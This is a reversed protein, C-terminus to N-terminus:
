FNLYIQLSYRSPIPYVRGNLYATEPDWLKSKSWVYLNTGVLQFDISSIGVKQLFDKRYNYNITVEQLRLYRSNDRWWTSLQSNNANYGYSLRPFKANPNETSPDGSYSAPTWRNSQDAVITLVNGLEGGHFPVYGMGNIYWVGDQEVTQGVHFYDTKGTGKFLVGITLKKYRFEAGFGYMLTPYTNTALPIQDDKDIKGDGNIDKYKIDGPLITGGFSQIPSNRVDAEDRFLGIAQYGRLANLPYGNLSQYPYKPVVQEWVQVENKSFTYNARLTFSMDDSLTHTYAINGDSGWSKMGGVNGYPLAMLGVYDPIQAREQFIGDRKDNFLDITFTLRENFLRGEFGIDSKIAKEWILNDAGISSETIGPINPSGWGVGATDNIITLYPYRKNSIRDNGVSGYSARIKFFDLWPLAKKVPEYMTPVWGVAVSPFFGFQRGPQFNESGTYGFNFDVMYTDNYGYTLRSSIGQYRLPIANMSESTVNLPIDKTEKQDSMYYYVLGSVRHVGFSKQYNLTSEFHYKRFQNDTTKMYTASRKEVRKVLILEGDYTRGTAFYMEPLLFRVESFRSTNDFAGQMKIDLGPLLMSLDQNVALTVKGSYEQRSAMGTQNLMVYPSYQDNPGYAPYQGSSYRKPITIPTLMSQANWLYTTNAMGPEKKTTLYGDAGLYIKTTKTLNIDLNIRYNYSNYGVGANYRSDSDQKYAASEQSTGLSLFYRAIEGGGRASLYYTQQWSHKKMIEDQWDINPYLDGDLNYRILDLEMDDYLRSMGRVVRAENALRAYDYGGVYDPFKNHLSSYTLNARATIQLKGSQGRKTTVLVVGNAGRVGYVATASADKLISFSEIDAPDVSNLDGELGDILVLASSSAGFTGIGRIWFESINKGPEGSTQLTIVGPVKGGLMNAVSTAPTQLEKANISTVAGVVSIKRQSGMGVVVVEEMEHSAEAFKLELNAKQETVLYEINAYGIFSVVLMDGKSATISFKGNVDTTTGVGPRDKLYVNAGPLTEGENDYVIGELKISARQAYVSFGCLFCLCFIIIINNIKM